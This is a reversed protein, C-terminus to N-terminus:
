SFIINKNSNWQVAILLLANGLHDERDFNFCWAWFKVIVGCDYVCGSSSRSKKKYTEPPQLSRSSDSRERMEQGDKPFSLQGVPSENSIGTVLSPPRSRNKREPTSQLPIFLAPNLIIKSLKTKTIVCHCMKWHVTTLKKGFKFIHPYDIMTTCDNLGNWSALEPNRVPIIVM